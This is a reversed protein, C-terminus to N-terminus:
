KLESDGRLRPDMTRLVFLLAPDGGERRHRSGSLDCKDFFLSTVKLDIVKYRKM